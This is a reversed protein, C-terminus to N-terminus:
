SEASPAPQAQLHKGRVKVRIEGVNEPYKPHDDAFWERIIDMDAQIDGTPTLSNKFGLEKKEYNVHGHVISVQAKDAILYFGERWYKVKKRTGEPAIFVWVIEDDDENIVNVVDDVFSGLHKRNVPIGGLSKLFGSWFGNFLEAKGIWRPRYGKSYATALVFITDWNSSHLMIFVAKKHHKYEGILTWGWLRLLFRSLLRIPLPIQKMQTTNNHEAM